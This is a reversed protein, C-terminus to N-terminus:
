SKVIHVTCPVKGAEWTVGFHVLKSKPCHVREHLHAFPLESQEARLTLVFHRASFRM